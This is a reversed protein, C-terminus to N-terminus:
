GVNETPWPFNLKGGNYASISGDPRIGMTKKKGDLCYDCDIQFLVM